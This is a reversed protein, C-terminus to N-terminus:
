YSKRVAIESLHKHSQAYAGEISVNDASLAVKMADFKQNANAQEIACEITSNLISPAHSGEYVPLYFSGFFDLRSRSFIWVCSITKVYGSYGKSSSFGFAVVCSVGFIVLNAQEHAISEKHPIRVGSKSHLYLRCATADDIKMTVRMIGNPVNGNYHKKLERFWKNGDKNVNRLSDDNLADAAARVLESLRQAAGWM